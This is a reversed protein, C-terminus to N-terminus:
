DTKRNTYRANGLGTGITLVGWHKAKHMRPLESLGQVVADNHMVVLTENDGIRPIAERIAAPLNFSGAEWNGPLNQAGRDISGDAEIVGPCGIGIVPVLKDNGKKLAKLMSCLEAVAEDRKLSDENAHRWLKMDEVSARGLDGAKQQNFAVRGCRINTGGIDVTLMQAHGKLMWPPLLHVSGILGAEDPDNEIVSLDIEVDDARLLLEARAVALAGIRSSSFGGGVVIRETKRWAKLRLYRRIVGAVEQAFNEVAGQVVAATDADGDRLAADLKKKGLSESPVDDFPDDGSKRLTKRIDDLMRTFASKSAKDGVFGKNDEIELNYSDVVVLPLQAAGHVPLTHQADKDPM